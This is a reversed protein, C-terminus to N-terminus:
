NKTRGYFENKPYQIWIQPKSVFNHSAVNFFPLVDKKNIFKFM